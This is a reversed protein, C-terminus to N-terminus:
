LEIWQDLDKRFHFVKTDSGNYLLAESGTEVDTPLKDFDSIDGEFKKIKNATKSVEVLSDRENAM